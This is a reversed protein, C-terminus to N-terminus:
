QFRSWSLVTSPFRRRRQIVWRTVGGLVSLREWDITRSAKLQDAAPFPIFLRGATTVGGALTLTLEVSVSVALAVVARPEVAVVMVALAAPSYAVPATVAATVVGGGAMEM